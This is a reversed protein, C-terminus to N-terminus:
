SLARVEPQTYGMLITETSYNLRAGGTGRAYGKDWLLQHVRLGGATMADYADGFAGELGPFVVLVAKRDAISNFIQVHVVCCKLSIVIHCIVLFIFFFCVALDRDM